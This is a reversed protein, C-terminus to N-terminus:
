AAAETGAAGTWIRNLSAHRQRRSAPASGVCRIVAERHATVFVGGWRAPHSPEPVGLNRVDEVTFPRGTLALLEVARLAADRWHRKEDEQDAQALDALRAALTPDLEPRHLVPLTDPGPRVSTGSTGGTTMKPRTGSGGATGPRENTTM